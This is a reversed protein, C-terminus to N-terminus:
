SKKSAKQAEAKQAEAKQAKAEQAKTAETCWVRLQDRHARWSVFFGLALISCVVGYRGYHRYLVPLDSLWGSCLWVVGCVAATVSYIVMVWRFFVPPLFQKWFPTVRRNGKWALWFLCALISCVVGYQGYDEHLFPWDYLWGSWLWMVVCVVGTVACMVLMGRLFVMLAFQKFLIGRDWVPLDRIFLVTPALNPVVEKLVKEPLIAPVIMFVGIDLTVGVVWAAVLMFASLGLSSSVTKFNGGSWYISTLIAV